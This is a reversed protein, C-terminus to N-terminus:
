YSKSECFMRFPSTLFLVFVLEGFETVVEVLAVQQTGIVGCSYNGGDEFQINSITLISLTARSSNGALSNPSPFSNYFTSYKGALTTPLISANERSWQFLNNPRVYSEMVCILSISTGAESARRIPFTARVTAAVFDNM